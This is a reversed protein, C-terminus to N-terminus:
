TAVDFAPEFGLARVTTRIEEEYIGNMMVILDPDYAALDSPPIIQQGGGPIFKGQKRPNIDVVFDVVRSAEPVINLITVGKSGAGWLVARENEREAREFVEAWRRQKEGYATVFRDIRETVSSPDLEGVLDPAEDTEGPRLEIQLYQGGFAEGVRLVEFGARRFLYTLSSSTFYSVHEYILDWIALDRLTFLANPVEVYVVTDHRDGVARRMMRAFHLPDSVHELVHRCCVLDAPHDAYTESYLDQVVTFPRAEDEASPEYSPDYGIGTNGGRECLLALFDGKGCGIDVVKKGRVDHTDILHDALDEAFQQFRPSFHLSNEYVQAYTIAEPDFAVNYIHGSEPFYALHLDGRPAARAAAQDDYLVNCLVPVRPIEIFVAGRTSESIPCTLVDSSAQM